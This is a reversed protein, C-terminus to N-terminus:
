GGAMTRAIETTSDGAKKLVLAVLALSVLTLLLMVTSVAAIEPRLGHGAHLATAVIQGSWDGRLERLDDPTTM